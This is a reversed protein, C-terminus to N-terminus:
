LCSEQVVIRKYLYIWLSDKKYEVKEVYIKTNDIKWLYIYFLYLKKVSHDLQSKSNGLNKDFILIM